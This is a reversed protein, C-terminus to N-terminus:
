RKSGLTQNQSEIGQSHAQGKERAVMKLRWKGKQMKSLDQAPKHEEVIVGAQFEKKPKHPSTVEPSNEAVHLVPFGVKSYVDNVDREVGVRISNESNHGTMDECQGSGLRLLQGDKEFGDWRVGNNAAQCTQAKSADGGWLHDAKKQIKFATVEQVVEAETRRKLTSTGLRQRAMEKPSTKMKKTVGIETLAEKDVQTGKSLVGRDKAM